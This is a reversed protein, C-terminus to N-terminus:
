EVIPWYVATRWDAQNPHDAPDTLYSEWPAGGPRVGNAAMWREIAAYTDTLQEYPGAHMAVAVAGGPLEGAEIDGAGAAVRALPVGAEVTMLGAGVEPYRTFPPGALAMGAQHAHGYSKGIGNGIAAALEHRAVRARVFLVPQAAIEQREISLTPMAMRPTPTTPLHFLRVCPGAQAVVERHRMRAPLDARGVARRYARPTRGFHRVFARTFVEHSEFGHAFAVDVVRDDGAALQAAARELRLRLAYAKPSEGTLRTFAREVQFRSAGTDRALTALAVGTGPERRLRRLVGFALDRTM